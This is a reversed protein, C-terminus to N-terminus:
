PVFAALLQTFSPGSTRKGFGLDRLARQLADLGRRFLSKPRYGHGLQETPERSEEQEGTLCCWVFALVVVGFLTTMRETDTVHSDELHFGRSKMAQRPCFLVRTPSARQHMTECGWRLAYRKIAKEARGHYALYLIDGQHNKCALVRLKVGYINMREHWCRYEGPELKKFIAWVQMGGVRTDAKLRICPAIRFRKLTQFWDQGIFERDALLSLKKGDLLPLVSKILAIRTATNSNGGHPLLVWALPLASTRWSVS